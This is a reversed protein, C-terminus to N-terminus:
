FIGATKVATNVLGERGAMADFFFESPTLGTSYSNKILAYCKPDIDDKEFNNLLPGNSESGM